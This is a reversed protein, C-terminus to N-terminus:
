PDERLRALLAAVIDADEVGELTDEGDAGAAQKIRAVELACQARENLLRILERYVGIPTSGTALGLVLSRGAAARERILTAIRGAVVRAMAGHEDIIVTPTVAVSRGDGKTRLAGFGGQGDGSIYIRENAITTGVTLELAGSRGVVTYDTLPYTSSGLGHSGVQLVGGTIETIGAYTNVGSLLVTGTSTKSLAIPNPFSPTGLSASVTGSRLDYSQAILDVGRVLGKDLRLVGPLNTSVAIDLTGALTASGVKVVGNGL